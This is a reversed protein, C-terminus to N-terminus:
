EELEFSGLQWPYQHYIFKFKNDVNLVKGCGWQISEARKSARSVARALGNSNTSFSCLPSFSSTGSGWFTASIGSMSQSFYWTAVLPVTRLGPVLFLDAALQADVNSLLGKFPVYADIYMQFHRVCELEIKGPGVSLTSPRPHLTSFVLRPWKKTRPRTKSLWFGLVKLWGHVVSSCCLSSSSRTWYGDSGTSISRHFFIAAASPLRVAM